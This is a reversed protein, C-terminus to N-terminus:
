LHHALLRQWKPPEAEDVRLADPPVVLVWLLPLLVWLVAVPDQVPLVLPVPLSVATASQVAPLVHAVHGRRLQPAWPVPPVHPWLLPRVLLLLLPAAMPWQKRPVLAQAQGSLLAVPAAWVLRLAVPLLLWGFLPLVPEAQQVQKVATEVKLCPVPWVRLEPTLDHNVPKEENIAM